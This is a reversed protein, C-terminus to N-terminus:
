KRIILFNLANALNESKTKTDSRFEVLPIGFKTNELSRDDKPNIM